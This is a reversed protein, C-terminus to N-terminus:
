GTNHRFFVLQGRQWRGRAPQDLDRWAVIKATEPKGNNLWHGQGYARIGVWLMGDLELTVLKRCDGSDPPQASYDWGDKEIM